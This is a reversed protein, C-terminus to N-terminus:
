SWTSTEVTLKWTDLDQHIYSIVNFPKYVLQCDTINKTSGFRIYYDSLFGSIRKKNCRPRFNFLSHVNLLIEQLLSSVKVIVIALYVYIRAM